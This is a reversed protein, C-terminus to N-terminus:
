SAQKVCNKNTVQELWIEVVEKIESPASKNRKGRVQVVRNNKYELTYFPTDPENKDRIFVITTDGEVHQNIYHSGGVCHKLANGEAILDNAESPLRFLYDGITMEMFQMARHRERYEAHVIERKMANLSDVAKDHAAFIDKPFLNSKSLKLKLDRLIYIYDLYHILPCGQKLLYNQLKVLSIYEPVLSIDRSQMYKEVGLIMKAGRDEIAKKLLYDKFDRDSKKFFSKNKKLFSMTAVRMDLHISDGIIDDALNYAKIKQAFEIRERYKYIRPLDEPYIRMNEIELYKLESQESLHKEWKNPYVEPHYSNFMGTVPKLGFEGGNLGNVKIHKDDALIELNVLRNDFSQIGETFHSQVSYTQIEIRKSTSLVIRYNKRTDFFTLRSNKTLRKEFVHKHKRKSSIITKQKNTWIYSAQDRYCWEFFAKPPKLRNDIYYKAEHTM